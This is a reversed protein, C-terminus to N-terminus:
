EVCYVTRMSLSVNEFKAGNELCMAETVELLYLHLQGTNLKADHKSPM